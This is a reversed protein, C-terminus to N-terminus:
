EPLPFQLSALLQVGLRTGPAESVANTVLKDPLKVTVISVLAATNLRVIPPFATPDSVRAMALPALKLMPFVSLIALL